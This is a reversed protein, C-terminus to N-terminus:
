RSLSSELDFGRDPCHVRFAAHADTISDHRSAVETGRYVVYAAGVQRVSWEVGGAFDAFCFRGPKGHATLTNILEM